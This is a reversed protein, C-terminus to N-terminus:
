RKIIDHGLNINEGSEHNMIQGYLTAIDGSWILTQYSRLVIIGVVLDAPQHRLELVGAAAAILEPSNFPQKPAAFLSSLTRANCPFDSRFFSFNLFALLL